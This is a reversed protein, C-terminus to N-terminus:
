VAARPRRSVLLGAAGLLVLILVVILVTGLTGSPAYGWSASHPWNPLAGVLLLVTGLLVLPMPRRRRGLRLDITRGSLPATGVRVPLLLAPLVAPEDPAPLRLRRELEDITM